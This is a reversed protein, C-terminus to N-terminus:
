NNITVSSAAFTGSFEMSDACGGPMGTSSCYDGTFVIAGSSRKCKNPSGGDGYLGPNGSLLVCLSQNLASIIAFDADELAIYAHVTGANLFAPHSTDPSCDPPVLGTANYSGVCNQDGSLQGSLALAHLPLAFGSTAGADLYVPILM